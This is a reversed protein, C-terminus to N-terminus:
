QELISRIKNYYKIRDDLGNTGGNIRKTLTINDCSDAYQNLRNKKWYWCASLVAYEPSSVMEPNNVITDDGMVDMSFSTYNARGTLQILGRGRFRWGDGSAEDGNGIRNAYVRNAIEEPKRAYQAALAETPFYRPFVKMLGEKSYNLNEELFKFGASEHMCQSLFASVREITNIDYGEIPLALALADFWKDTDKTVGISRLDDETFEFNFESM